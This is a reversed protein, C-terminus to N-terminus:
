AEGRARFYHGDAVVTCLEDELFKIHAEAKDLTRVLDDRQRVVATSLERLTNIEEQLYNSPKTNMGRVRLRMIALRHQALEDKLKM